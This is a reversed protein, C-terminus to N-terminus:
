SAKKRAQGFNEVRALSISFMAGGSARNAVDITGAHAEVIRRVISLGLGASGCRTRDRRWFRRFILEREGEAIGPGRDVISLTGNESLIVEVISGQPTNNIANEALNRVARFLADHHGKVWIPGEEGKLEISKGQAVALPAVFEAAEICVSQLDAKESPDLVFTELEAVDLLQDVIRSMGAIDSRLSNALDRDAISNIRMRLITLPTRLEHAADATFERQIRFGQDLRDLAQNVSLVLPKIESPMKDVSFRMDIRTPTISKAIKSAALV